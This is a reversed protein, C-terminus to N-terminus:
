ILKLQNFISKFKSIQQKLLNFSAGNEKSLGWNIKDQYKLIMLFVTLSLKQLEKVLAAINNM